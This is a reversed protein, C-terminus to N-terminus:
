GTGQGIVHTSIENSPVGPAAPIAHAPLASPPAAGLLRAVLNASQNDGSKSLTVPALPAFSGPTAAGEGASPAQYSGGFWYDSHGYGMDETGMSANWPQLPRGFRGVAEPFAGQGGATEGLPFAWKLVDDSSSHLVLWNVGDSPNPGLDTPTVFDVPVAAALLAASAIRSLQGTSRLEKIASLVVRCGMSHGVLVFQAQPDAGRIWDALRVGSELSPKIDEAYAVTSLWKSKGVNGPWHFEIVEAPFHYGALLRRFASYFYRADVYADNFGHIFIVFAKGAVFGGPPWVPAVAAALDTSEPDPLARVTLVAIPQGGSNM